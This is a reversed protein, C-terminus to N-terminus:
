VNAAMFALPAYVDILCSHKCVYLLKKQLTNTHYGVWERIRVYPTRSRFANVSSRRNEIPRPNLDRWGDSSQALFTEISLIIPLRFRKKVPHKRRKM